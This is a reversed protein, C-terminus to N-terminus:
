WGRFPTEGSLPFNKFGQFLVHTLFVQTVAAWFLSSFTVRTGKHWSHKPLKRGPVEPFGLGLFPGTDEFQQTPGVSPLFLQM